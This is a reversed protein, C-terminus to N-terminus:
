CISELTVIKPLILSPLSALCLLQLTTDVAGLPAQLPLIAESASTLAGSFM